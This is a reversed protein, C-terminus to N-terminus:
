AIKLEKGDWYYPHDALVEEPAVCTKNVTCVMESLAGAEEKKPNKLLLVEHISSPLVWAPKDGFREPYLLAAAGYLHRPNTLAYLDAEGEDTHMMPFIRGIDLKEEGVVKPTNALAAAHLEDVTIGWANMHSYNVHAISFEEFAVPFYYTVALDLFKTHPLKELLKKNSSMNILMVCVKEKVNDWSSISHLIEDAPFPDGNEVARIIEEVIDENTKGTEECYFMRSASEEPLAVNLGVKVGGNVLDKERISLEWDPRAEKLKKMIERTKAM